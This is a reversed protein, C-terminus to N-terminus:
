RNSFDPYMLEGKTRVIRVGAEVAESILDLGDTRNGSEGLMDVESANFFNGRGGGTAFDVRADDGTMAMVLQRWCCTCLLLYHEPRAASITM